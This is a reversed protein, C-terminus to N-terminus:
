RSELNIQGRYWHELNEGTPRYEGKQALTMVASGAAQEITPCNLRQVVVRQVEGSPSFQIIFPISLKVHRKSQGPLRCEDVAATEIREIVDTSVRNLGATRALPINSWDGGAVSVPSSHAPASILGALGLAFLHKM